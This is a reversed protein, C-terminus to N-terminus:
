LIKIPLSSPFYFFKAQSLRLYKQKYIERDLLVEESFLINLLLPKLLFHFFIQLKMIRTRMTLFYLKQPFIQRFEKQKIAICIGKDDFLVTRSSTTGQDLAIIFKSM